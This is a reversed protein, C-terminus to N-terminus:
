IKHLPARKVEWSKGLDHMVVDIAEVMITIISDGSFFIRIEYNEDFISDCKQCSMIGDGENKIEKASCEPCVLSM